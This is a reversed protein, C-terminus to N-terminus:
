ITEEEEPHTRDDQWPVWALVTTGSGLESSIRVEGGVKRVRRHMNSLGHGIVKGTQSVEFGCGDDSVKLLVQEETAWLQVEVKKAQAHKAVNALSEQCIHFLTLAHKRPLNNLGNDTTALLTKADSNNRFEDVLRQLGHQLSEGGRLQRPRLDLIYARLDQTVSNLDDISENIKQRTVKIDEDMSVRALDLALGICYISQIIGDHLDMGIREREELIALRRTQLQLRANEIATGAWTGVAELLNLERDTFRRDDLSAVTMVGVLKNSARLPVCVLYKFGAEAVAPRLCLLHTEFQTSELTKNELASQGVLCDGFRFKEQSWFAQAAEGRHMALWLVDRDDERLFIEGAQVGFHSIVQNLTQDLIEESSSTRALSEALDYLLTLDDFQQTLAQDREVIFEYLRSNEIAVAAYAALTEIVHEDDETFEPANEKDTLYIQGLLRGGSIIPVGLFSSMRPHNPPFGVSRPHNVIESTRITRREGLPAGILGLGKPLHPIKGIDHGEMGVHIFKVLDGNEAVIGIAAYQAGAQERALRVIRELVNNRSLDSVLELSARHLAALRDELQERTLVTVM